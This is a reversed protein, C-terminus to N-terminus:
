KFIHCSKMGAKELYLDITPNDFKCEYLKLKKKFFKDIDKQKCIVTKKM